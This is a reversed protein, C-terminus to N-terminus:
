ELNNVKQDIYKLRKEYKEKKNFDSFCIGSYVKGGKQKNYKHNVFMFYPLHSSKDTILHIKNTEISM